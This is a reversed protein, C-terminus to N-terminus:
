WRKRPPGKKTMLALIAYVMADMVDWHHGIGVKSIGPVFTTLEEELDPHHGVFHVRGNEFLNAVPEARLFKGRKAHIGERGSDAM